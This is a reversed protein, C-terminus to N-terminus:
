ASTFTCNTSSVMSPTIGGPVMYETATAYSFNAACRFFTDDGNFNMCCALFRRHSGFPASGVPSDVRHLRVNEMRTDCIGVLFGDGTSFMNGNGITTATNKNKYM